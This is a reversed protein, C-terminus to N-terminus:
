TYRGLEDRKRERSHRRAHESQSEILELNSPRNDWPIGNKHHVIRGGVEDLGFEAIAVLRHVDYYHTNGNVTFKIQEHNTLKRTQISQNKKHHEGPSRRDIGNRDMARSVTSVSVGALEAIEALSKEENVYKEKLWDPDTHAGDKRGVERTGRLSLSERPSRAGVDLKDVWESITQPCCGLEDAVEKMSMNEHSYLRQLTEKERWPYDGEVEHVRDIHKKVGRSSKFERGCEPCECVSSETDDTGLESM